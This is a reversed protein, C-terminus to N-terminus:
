ILIFQNIIIIIIIIIYLHYLRTISYIHIYIHRNSSQESSVINRPGLPGLLSANFSLDHRTVHLVSLYFPPSLGALRKTYLVPSVGGHLGDALERRDLIM